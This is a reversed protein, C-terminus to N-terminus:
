LKARERDVERLALVFGLNPSILPRREKVYDFAADYTMPKAGASGGVGYQMLYALVITASRSVGHRCHVLVGEGRSIGDHMFRLAEAFHQSIDEDSHDKLQLKMVQIAGDAMAKECGTSIPCEAAVNM